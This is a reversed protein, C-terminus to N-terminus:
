KTRAAKGHSREEDAKRDRRGRGQPEESRHRVLATRQHHHDANPLRDFRQRTAGFPRDVGRSPRNATRRAAELGGVGRQWAGKEGQAFLEEFLSGFNDFANLIDFYLTTYTAIEHPVWPQPSFDKENPLVLMKMSKEYPPPAYVATRHVMERGESAFDLFGGVGQMAGIGQNRMVELISKGKRRRNEPTAARAAEAYGLPHIFWRIQPTGDGYDSRCREVVKQFAKHEALSGNQNGPSRGLIGKMVDFNDTM